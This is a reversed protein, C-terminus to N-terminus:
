RLRGRRRGPALAEGLGAFALALLVSAVVDSPRHWEAVVTAAGVLAVVPLLLVVTASRLVRPVALALAAALGAVAAVHGSPFSNLATADLLSPRDLGAKLVQSALVTGGAVVAVAVARRTGHSLAALLVAAATALLLFPVRVLDHLFTEAWRTDGLLAASSTMLRDDVYQGASTWVAVLYVAAVGLAAVLALGWGRAATSGDRTGAVTTGPATRARANAATPTDLPAM